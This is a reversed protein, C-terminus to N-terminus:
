LEPFYWSKGDTPKIPIALYNTPFSPMAIFHFHHINKKVKSRVGSGVMEVKLRKGRGGSRGGGPSSPMSFGDSPPLYLLSSPIM